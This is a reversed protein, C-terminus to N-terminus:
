TKKTEKFNKICLYHRGLTVCTALSGVRNFTNLDLIKTEVLFAEFATFTMARQVHVSSLWVLRLALNIALLMIGGGLVKLSSIGHLSATGLLARMQGGDVSLNTTIAHLGVELSDIGHLSTAGLLARM